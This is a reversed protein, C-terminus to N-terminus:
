GRHKNGAVPQQPNADVPTWQGKADLHSIQTQATVPAILNYDSAGSEIRQVVELVSVSSTEGSQSHYVDMSDPLIAAYDSVLIGDQVSQHEKQEFRSLSSGDGAAEHLGLSLFAKQAAQWNKYEPNGRLFWQFLEACVVLGGPVMLLPAKNLLILRSALQQNLWKIFEAGMLREKDALSEPVTDIFTGMRNARGAGKVNLLQLFRQLAIANARILLAGLTGAGRADESLLALWVALVDLNSAIWAFGSAPMLSRALLLNLRGRLSRDGEPLFEFQYYSGVTLMSELLPNWQSLAQGQHDFLSVNFDMRLKGIGQLLAASFLAYLWLEQIETLPLGPEQVILERFLTLAAETRNLAQDLMGGPLSYFQNASEPLSQCFNALSQILCFCLSEFRAAEFGMSERIKELLAQRKADHLLKTSPLIAILDKPPPTATARKKNSPVQFLIVEM